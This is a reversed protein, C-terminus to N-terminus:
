EVVMLDSMVLNSLFFGSRTFSLHGENEKLLGSRVHPEAAMMIQKYRGVGYESLLREMDLGEKTRLSTFVFEDCLEDAGLIEIEHPTNDYLRIYSKLDAENSRRISVGDFSHAGPGFGVYPARTWYKSNHRSRFGPYSFNSIEYHEMGKKETMDLLMDYMRLSLEEDIEDIQGADRMRTLLTGEEFMLSYASLHKVPLSLAQELDKGWSIVSENPFGFILDVSVNDIGNEVLTWVAKVAQHASHRRRIFRLREDDFSQVGLSVRNVGLDVLSRVFSPTVDDPNAELTIESDGALSFNRTLNKFIKGIHDIHLCSPTGGGIYITDIHSDVESKRDAMEMLLKDVYKDKFDKGYVTSYFDCYICRSQCFPVHIYIGSFVPIEPNKM